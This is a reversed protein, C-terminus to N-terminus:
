SAPALVFAIPPPHADYQSLRSWGDTAMAAVYLDEAFGAVPCGSRLEGVTRTVTFTGTGGGETLLLTVGRSLRFAHTAFGNPHSASYTITVTDGDSSYNLVGCADATAAGLTPPNLTGSCVQNDVHLTMVFSNKGDGDADFVLGLPAAEDTTIATPASLDDVNPVVYHIGLAGIDVKAGSADFLDIKVQYKGQEAAASPSGLFGPAGSEFKANATDEVPDPISWTGVPPAAPPIEFLNPVGNVVRPGLSYAEVVVSGGVVHKYHRHVEGTMPTFPGSTGKRYSVRYYLVGLNDRLRNDFDLRPRMVGGFPEGAATLGINSADTTPQLAASAGRILHMSVRGIGYVIVYDDAAVVPPCPPCTVAFPSTTYLTVETGCQYNWHTFCGIPTPAYITVPFFGFLLQTARFYLNLVDPDVCSRFVVAEFHGCDDTEVTALLRTTVFPPYFWCLLHAIASSAVPSAAVLSALSQRLQATNSNRALLALDGLASGAARAAAASAVSQMAAGGAVLGTDMASIQRASAMVPSPGFREDPPPPPPPLPNLLGDRILEIVHDPLRSLIIWLPEVDYISVTANCVPLDTPIGGSVVRRLLTGRVLCLRLIWCRWIEPYIQFEASPSPDGPEIRLHAEKAGLRTLEAIAPREQRPEPGVMVRVMQPTRAAPLTLTAEGKEDLPAQALLSGGSSFAYAVARPPSQGAEVGLLNARVRLTISSTQEAM